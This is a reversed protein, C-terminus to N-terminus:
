LEGRNQTTGLRYKPETTQEKPGTTTPGDADNDEAGTPNHEFIEAEGPM